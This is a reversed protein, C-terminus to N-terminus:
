NAYDHINIFVMFTLSFRLIGYIFKNWGWVEMWGGIECAKINDTICNSELGKM